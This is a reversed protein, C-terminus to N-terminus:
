NQVLYKGHLKKLQKKRQLKIKRAKEQRLYQQTETYKPWKGLNRVLM